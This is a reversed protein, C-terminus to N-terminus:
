SGNLPRFLIMHFPSAHKKCLAIFLILADMEPRQIIMSTRDFNSIIYAPRYIDPASHEFISQNAQYKIRVNVSDSVQFKQLYRMLFLIANELPNSTSCGRSIYSELVVAGRNLTDLIWRYMRSVNWYCTIVCLSQSSHGGLEGSSFGYSIKQPFVLFLQHM